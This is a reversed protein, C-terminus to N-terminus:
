FSDLWFTMTSAERALSLKCGHDLVVDRPNLQSIPRIAKPECDIRRIAKDSM